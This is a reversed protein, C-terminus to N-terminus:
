EAEFGKLFALGSAQMRCVFDAFEWPAAWAWGAVWVALGLLVLEDDVRGVAELVSTGVLVTRMAPVKALALEVPHQHLSPICSHSSCHHSCSHHHHHAVLLELLGPGDLGDLGDQDDQGDQGDQGDELPLELSSPKGPPRAQVSAKWPEWPWVEVVAVAQLPVELVLPVHM